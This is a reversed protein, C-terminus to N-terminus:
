GAAPESQALFTQLTEFLCSVEIPKAIHADMGCDRYEAVQHVMANATLAVIPTRLRGETLEAERITRCATLGDMVPMQVDMLILDWDQKRWAAVAEAGNEVLVPDLGMQNLLTTLVLRNVRNDEAALIRLQRDPPAAARTLLPGRIAPSVPGIYVLPIIATFTSGQGEVSHVELDGGMLRTLEHCIALGLGTGGFRRTTSSDGQSFRSFLEGIAAESIGIGTDSVALIIGDPAPRVAVSVRGHDTFKLANSVLNYVIQRLRTPDGRYLGLVPEDIDFEFDVGKAAALPAFTAHAGRVLEALDYETEELELKGAEIKAMDLIDNLIALLSQGSHRVV